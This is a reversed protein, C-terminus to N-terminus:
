TTVRVVRLPHESGPAEQVVVGLIRQPRAGQSRYDAVEDEVQSGRMALVEGHRKALGMCWPILTPLPAVARSVVADFRRTCEEARRHEVEVRDGLGLEDVALQLFRARRQLSEILTVHLDPRAIALPIGPLGAGSGVDAVTRENGILPALAASNFVHRSWVRGAERPGILGWEAARGTLLAAYAKALPFTKGFVVLGVAEVQAPDDTLGITSASDNVTDAPIALSM